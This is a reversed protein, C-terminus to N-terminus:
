FKMRIIANFMQSKLFLLVGGLHEGRDRSKLRPLISYNQTCKQGLALADAM